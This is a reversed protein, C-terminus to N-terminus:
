NKQVLLRYIHQLPFDFKDAYTYRYEFCRSAKVANNSFAPIYQMSVARERKSVFARSTFDAIIEPEVPFILGTIQHLIAARYHWLRQLCNAYQTTLDKTEYVTRSPFSFKDCCLTLPNGVYKEPISWLVLIHLQVAEDTARGVKDFSICRLQLTVHVRWITSPHRFQRADGNWYRCAVDYQAGNGPNKGQM